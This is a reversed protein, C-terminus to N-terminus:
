NSSHSSAPSQSALGEEASGHAAELGGLDLLGGEVLSRLTIGLEVYPVKFAM